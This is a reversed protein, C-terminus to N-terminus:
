VPVFYTQIVLEKLEKENLFYGEETKEGGPTITQISDKGEFLSYMTYILERLSMDMCLYPSMEKFFAFAFGKDALIKERLVGLFAEAFQVQRKMRDTNLGSMGPLQRDRVYSEATSEDLVFVSGKKMGPDVITMDEILEVPVGDVLSVAKGIGDIDMSIFCHVPIGYLLNSVAAATMQGSKVGGDGFSHAVCVPSSTTALYNGAGDFKMVDTMTDRPINMLTIEGTKTNISAVVLVDAQFGNENIQIGGRQKTKDIGLLLVNVIDQNYRYKTGNYITTLDNIDEIQRIAYPNQNTFMTFPSYQTMQWGALILGAAAALFVILAIAARPLNAKNNKHHANTKM